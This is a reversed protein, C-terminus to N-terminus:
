EHMPNSFEGYYVPVANDFVSDKKTVHKYHMMFKLKEYEKLSAAEESTLLGEIGTLDFTLLKTHVSDSAAYSKGLLNMHVTDNVVNRVEMALKTDAAVSKFSVNVNLKSKWLWTPWLYRSSLEYPTIGTFPMDCTDADINKRPTVELTPIKEVVNIIKWERGKSSYFDRYFYLLVHARDGDKLQDTFDSFNSIRYFTDAFEPRLAYKDVTYVHSEYGWEENSNVAPGCSVLAAVAIVALPFIRFLRNM